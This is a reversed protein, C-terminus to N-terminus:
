FDIARSDKPREPLEFDVFAGTFWKELDAPWGKTDLPTLIVKEDKKGIMIEGSPLTNTSRKRM